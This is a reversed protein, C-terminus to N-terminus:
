KDIEGFVLDLTGVNTVLDSLLLGKSMFNLGQLHLFGPAKIHCRYPKSSGNSTFGIAFEGKPAEVVRYSEDKAIFYGETHLKFHGILSEMDRKFFARFPKVIKQNNVFFKNDLLDSNKEFLILDKLFLRILHNSQRMEFLRINFRDLSDGNVGCGIKLSDYNMYNEYNDFFRLDWNIGSGRLMVGSFAWDQVDYYTAVGINTLRTKWIRNTCLLEMFEDLRKDFNLSFKNLDEILEFSIDSNVGGPRIYAAHLRAGCVREYFEMLYERLDFGWLFPTLAGVDLAHTTLALLHNLIRTIECFLMRILSAKYTIKVKLLSEIALCYCHEQAMTSVYDLRDMYPLGQNYIKAEILKETGRHLLGIHPDVKVISEGKLEIVLRLVGHAAPHQPGFNITINKVKKLM